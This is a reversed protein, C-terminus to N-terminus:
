IYSKRIRWDRCSYVDDRRDTNHIKSKDTEIKKLSSIVPLGHLRSNKVRLISDRAASYYLRHRYETFEAKRSKFFSPLTYQHMIDANHKNRDSKRYGFRAHTFYQPMDDCFIRLIFFLAVFDPCIANPYPM